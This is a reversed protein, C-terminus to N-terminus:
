FNATHEKEYHRYETFVLVSYELWVDTGFIKVHSLPSVLCVNVCKKLKKNRAYNAELTCPADLQAPTYLCRHVTCHQIQGAIFFRLRSNPLSLFIRLSVPRQAYLIRSSM